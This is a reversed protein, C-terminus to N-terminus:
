NEKSFTVSIFFKECAFTINGEWKNTIKNSYYCKIVKKKIRM